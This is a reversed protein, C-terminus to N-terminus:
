EAVAGEDWTDLDEDVSDGSGALVNELEITLLWLAAAEEGCLLATATAVVLRTCTTVVSDLIWEDVAGEEADEAEREAAEGVADEAGIEAAGYFPMSRPTFTPFQSM